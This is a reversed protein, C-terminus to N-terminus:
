IKIAMLSDVKERFIQGEKTAEDVKGIKILSDIKRNREQLFKSTIIATEKNSKVAKQTDSSSCSALLAILLIYKM